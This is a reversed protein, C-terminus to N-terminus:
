FQGETAQSTDLKAVQAPSKCDKTDMGEEITIDNVDTQKSAMSLYFMILFVHSQSLACMTYLAIM